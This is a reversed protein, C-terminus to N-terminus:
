PILSLNAHSSIIFLTPLPLIFHSLQCPGTSTPHQACPSSQPTIQNCHSGSSSCGSYCYSACLTDASFSPSLSSKLLPPMRLVHPPATNISSQSITQSRPKIFWVATSLPFFLSLLSLPCFPLLFIMEFGTCHMCGIWTATCCFSVCCRLAHWRRYYRTTVGM